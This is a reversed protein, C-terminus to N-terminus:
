LQHPSSHRAVHGEAMLHAYPLMAVPFSSVTEADALILEMDILGRQHVLDLAQYVSRFSFAEEETLTWTESSRMYQGTRLNRLLTRIAPEPHTRMQIHIIWAM